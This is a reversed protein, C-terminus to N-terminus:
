HVPSPTSFVCWALQGRVDVAHAIVSALVANELVRSHSAESRQAGVAHLGHGGAHLPVASGVAARAIADIVLGELNHREPQSDLAVVRLLDALRPSADSRTRM